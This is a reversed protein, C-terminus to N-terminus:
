SFVLRSNLMYAVGLTVASALLKAVLSPAVHLAVALALTSVMLCLCRTLVFLAAQMSANHRTRRHRFTLLKNLIFSNGAAIGYSVANAVLPDLHGRHTLLWFLSVDIMTSSAGILAFLVPQALEFPAGPVRGALIDSALGGARQVRLPMASARATDVDAIPM